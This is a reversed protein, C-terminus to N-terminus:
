DENSNKRKGLASPSGEADSGGSSDSSSSSSEGDSGGDMDIDIEGEAQVVEAASSSSSGREARAAADAAAKKWMMAQELLKMGVIKKEDDPFIYDFYEEQGLETYGDEALVPRKMKIKRPFRGEM